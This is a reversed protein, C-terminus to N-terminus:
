LWKNERKKDFIYTEIEKGKIHSIRIKRLLGFDPEKALDEIKSM